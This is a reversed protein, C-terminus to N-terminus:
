PGDGDDRGGADGDGVRPLMMVVMAVMGMMLMVM